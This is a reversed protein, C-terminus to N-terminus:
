YGMARLQDDFDAPLPTPQLNLSRGAHNLMNRLLREAVPDSGLNDRIRLSNLTFGGAGLDYVAVTLGSSYGLCTNIAGAVVESPVDQGSFATGGLCNAIFRTNWCAVQRCDKSSRITKQGTM